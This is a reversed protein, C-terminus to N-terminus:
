EKEKERRAEDFILSGVSLARHHSSSSAGTACFFAVCRDALMLNYWYRPCVNNIVGLHIVNTLKM